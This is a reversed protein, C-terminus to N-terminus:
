GMFRNIEKKIDEPELFIEIYWYEELILKLM